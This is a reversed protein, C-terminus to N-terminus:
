VQGLLKRTSGCSRVTRRRGSGVAIQGGREERGRSELHWINPSEGQSSGLEHSGGIESV